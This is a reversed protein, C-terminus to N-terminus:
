LVTKLKDTQVHSDHPMKLNKKLNQIEADKEELLSNLTNNGTEKNVEVINKEWETKEIQLAKKEAQETRLKNELKRLDIQLKEKSVYTSILASCILESTQKFLDVKDVISFKSM